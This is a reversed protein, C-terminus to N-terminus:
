PRTPPPERTRERKVLRIPPSSRRLLPALVDRALYRSFVIKGELQKLHHHDAFLTDPLAARCDVFTVGYRKSVGDLYDRPRRRGPRM